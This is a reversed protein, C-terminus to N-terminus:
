GWGGAQLAKQFTMAYSAILHAKDMGNIIRRAAEFQAISAPGVPPLYTSLSKKTFWGEVMGFRMIKAAIKMDMALDPNALLAGNLGLEKDARQYNSEWTLQPYGRGYWPYYRLHTKRWQESLWYAERVPRMTANTEHYATALCYAAHSVPLGALAGLVAECGEVEPQDLTPGFLQGRIAKYFAAKDFETM